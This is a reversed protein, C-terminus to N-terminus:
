GISRERTAPESGRLRGSLEALVLERLFRHAPDAQFREHWLAVIPVAPVAIPPAVVVLGLRPLLPEVLERPAAFFLDTESVAVLAALFTPVVLGVRRQMGERELAEGVFSRSRTGTRVMVHPHEVWARARLKRGKGLAPHGRRAVVGFHVHGLGRTLLGAGEAPGPGLALDTQGTELALVDSAGRDSVELRAGPAAAYLRACLRPLLPALVDPCAVSFARRTETPDFRPQERWLRAADGLVRSLPERLAEARPTLVMTRGTRVLLPDGFLVRLRGLAHSAAPQGIALRRAARTVSGERLLADLTTLLNLDVTSVDVDSMSAHLGDITDSLPTRGDARRLAPPM